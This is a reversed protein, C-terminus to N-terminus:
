SDFHKSRSPANARKRNPGARHPAIIVSCSQVATGIRMGIAKSSQIGTEM